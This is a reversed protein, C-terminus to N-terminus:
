SCGFMSGLKIDAKDIALLTKSGKPSSIFTLLETCYFAKAILLVSFKLKLYIIAQITIVLIDRCLHSLYMYLKCARLKEMAVKAPQFYSIQVSKFM